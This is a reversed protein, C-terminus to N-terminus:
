STAPLPTRSRDIDVDGSGQLPAVKGTLVLNTEQGLNRDVIGRLNSSESRLDVLHLIGECQVGGTTGAYSTCDAPDAVNVAEAVTTSSGEGGGGDAPEDRGGCAAAVLGVALLAVGLRWGTRASPRTRDSGTPRQRHGTNM